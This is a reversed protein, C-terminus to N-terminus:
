RLRDRATEQADALVTDLVRLDVPKVLHHDFGARQSRSRDSEQGYGTLAILTVAALGPLARLRVALEYGDM